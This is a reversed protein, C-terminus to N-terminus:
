GGRSSTNKLRPKSKSHAQTGRLEAPTSPNNMQFQMALGSAPGPQLGVNGADGVYAGDKFPGYVRYSIKVEAAQTTTEMAYTGNATSIQVTGDGIVGNKKYRNYTVSTLVVGAICYYKKHVTYAPASDICKGASTVNNTAVAGDQIVVELLKSKDAQLHLWQLLKIAAHDQEEKHYRLVKGDEIKLVVPTTTATTPAHDGMLMPKGNADFMVYMGVLDQLQDKYMRADSPDIFARNFFDNLIEEENIVVAQDGAVAPVCSGAIVISTVYTGFDIKNM